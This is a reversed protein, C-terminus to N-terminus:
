NIQNKAELALKEAKETVEEEISNIKKTISLVIQTLDETINEQKERLKLIKKELQKIKFAIYLFPNTASAAEATADELEEKVESIALGKYKELDSQFEKLSELDNVSNIYALTKEKDIKEM